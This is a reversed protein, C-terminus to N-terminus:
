ESVSWLGAATGAAPELVESSMKVAVAKVAAKVDTPDLEAIAKPSEYARTLAAPM